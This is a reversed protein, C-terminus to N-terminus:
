RATKSFPPYRTPDITRDFCSEGAGHKWNEDIAGKVAPYAMPQSTTVNNERNFMACLKFTRAGTVTYVYPQGSQPDVPIINGSIPDSLDELKSPLIEKTQWYNVVQWQINSLDNQKQDDLRMLRIDTPSGIIFFGAVVTLIAVAGFAYGVLKARAPYTKWYGKLDAYFHMFGGSAVLLVALVKLLFRTTLEGGLFTNILTILDIAVTLGAVFITLM